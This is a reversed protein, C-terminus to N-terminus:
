GARKTREGRRGKKSVSQFFFNTLRPVTRTSLKLKLLTTPITQSSIACGGIGLFGDRELEDTRVGEREQVKFRVYNLGETSRGLRQRSVLGRRRGGGRTRNTRGLWGLQRGVIFIRTSEKGKREKGRWRWEGGIAEVIGLPPLATTIRPISRGNTSQHRLPSSEGFLFVWVSYMFFANSLMRIFPGSPPVALIRGLLQRRESVSWPRSRLHGPVLWQAAASPLRSNPILQDIMFMGLFSQRNNQSACNTWRAATADAYTMGVRWGNYAGLSVLINGAHDNLKTQIYKAGQRINFDINYCGGDLNESGQCNESGLQMMGAEKNKGEVWPDCTSEQMATAALMIPPINVAAAASYFIDVYPQCPHYISNPDSLVTALDAVVLDSIQVM